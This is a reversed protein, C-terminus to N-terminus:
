QVSELDNEPVVEVIERKGVGRRVGVTTVMRQPEEAAAPELVMVPANSAKRMANQLDALKKRMEDTMKGNANAVEKQLADFQEKLKGANAGANAIDGKLKKEIDALQMSLAEKSKNADNAVAALQQELKEQAADRKELKAMYVSPNSVLEEEVVRQANANDTSGAARLSLMVSGTNQALAVKQADAAEVEVTVVRAVVPKENKQDVVQDIALVRVNQVLVDNTASENDNNRNANRTYLLDVRDGALVFGGVGVVDDVRISVARMGETVTTSLSARGGAGSIKWKLIAENTSISALAVRRGDVTLESIKSFAGEPVASKSWPIEKLTEAQLPDGFTFDKAAVVITAREEVPMAAPAATQRPVQNALWTNAFFVAASGFVTALIIMLLTSFRM